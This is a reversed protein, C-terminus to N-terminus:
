KKFLQELKPNLFVTALLSCLDNSHKAGTLFMYGLHHGTDYEMKRTSFRGNHLAFLCVKIITKPDIPNNGRSSELDYAAEFASTDLSEVITDISHLASGPL